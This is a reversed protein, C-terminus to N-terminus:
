GNDPPCLPHTRRQSPQPDETPPQDSPFPLSPARPSRAPSVQALSHGASSWPSAEPGKRRVRGWWSGRCRQATILACGASHDVASSSHTLSKFGRISSTVAEIAARWEGCGGPGSSAGYHSPLNASTPNLCCGGLKLTALSSSRTGGSLLCGATGGGGQRHDLPSSLVRWLNRPFPTDAAREIGGAQLHCACRPPLTGWAWRDQNAAQPWSSLSCTLGPGCGQAAPGAGAEGMVGVIRVRLGLGVGLDRREQTRGEMCITVGM